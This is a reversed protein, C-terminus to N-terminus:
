VKGGNPIARCPRQMPTPLDDPWGTALVDISIPAQAWDKRAKLSEIGTRRCDAVILTHIAIQEPGPIQFLIGSRYIAFTKKAL